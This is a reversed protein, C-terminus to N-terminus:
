RTSDADGSSGRPPSGARRTPVGSDDGFYQRLGGAIARAIKERGDPDSLIRADLKNNINVTEVLVKAPVMNGRLVAPLWRQPRGRRRSRVIHDRIPRNLHVPLGASAYSELIAKALKRSLVEDRLREKRSFSVQPGQKWERYKRYHSKGYGSQTGSRYRAGPVYVMAGRLASHLSDAHLSIFVIKDRSVKQEKTLRRYISNALYWRLNVGVRTSRGGSARHPPHTKVVEKKNAVLKTSNFIKCGHETDDLLVHVTAATERELARKIRCAVDYVYDSEWIKHRSAGLDEGGHGPDLLVHIGALSRSAPRLDLGVADLESANIQATVRRPDNRPLYSSLLMDLPIKVSYGVPIDRLDEIGSRRAIAAAAENVDEPEVLGTFRLVVASYLAEGKALRYRAFLGEDDRGFELREDDSKTQPKFRDLLMRAPIRVADVDALAPTGLRNALAIEQWNEGRGTYWLAVQWLGESHNLARARRPHHIFAGDAFRDDPFMARLALFRYEERLLDWPVIVERGQVLPMGLNAAQLAASRSEDGGLRRALSLYGEGKEPLVAVALDRGEIFVARPPDDGHGPLPVGSGVEASLSPILFTLGLVAALATGRAGRVRRASWWRERPGSM